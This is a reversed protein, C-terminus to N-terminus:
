DLQAAITWLPRDRRSRKAIAMESLFFTSSVVPTLLLCSLLIEGSMSWAPGHMCEYSLVLHRAYHSHSVQM